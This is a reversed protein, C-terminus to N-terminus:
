ASAPSALWILEGGEASVLPSPTAFWDVTESLGQHISVSPTYGLLRGAKGIDAQSHRVDGPRDELFIPELDTSLIENMSQVLDLLSIREGCGVNMVEGAAETAFAARLCADVVNAVFTFDRSQRGDGFIEPRDGMLMRTALRPILASYESTPDQRPGFVNFFRLSVTELGYVGTFARCYSEGAFKAAAYPSLTTVPMREHKPLTPTNGYVSSSSSYVVRRVGADRAATLVTLTGTANVEHVLRPDAVSRAVSPLAALHFVVDSGELAAAVVQPDRIDGRILEVRGNLEKLNLASGTSLDDLVRIRFGDLELLGRVLNSGIFGAGGTVTMRAAHTWADGVEPRGPLISASRRSAPVAIVVLRIGVAVTALAVAGAVAASLRGPLTVILIGVGTGAMGLGWFVAATTLPHNFHRALLDHLHERDGVTLERGAVQRRIVTFAIEFAFVGLCAGAALFGHIGKAQIARITFIALFAGVAYAGGNGLFVKAPPRNWVVFGALAGAIALEPPGWGGLTLDGAIAALGVAAIAAVGGAVGDKGDAMNVANATTVLLLTVAAGAVLGMRTPTVTGGALLGGAAVLLVLRSRAQLPKFDDILGAGLSVLVAGLATTWVPQGGLALAALTGTVMAVGGVLPVPRRHFKLPGDPEDVLGISRGVRALIPIIGATVALAILFLM